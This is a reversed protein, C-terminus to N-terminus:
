RSPSVSRVFGTEAWRRQLEKLKDFAKEQGDAVFNKMEEILARKKEDLQNFINSEVPEGAKLFEM